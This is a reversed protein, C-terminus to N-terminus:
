GQSNYFEFTLKKNSESIGFKKNSMEKDNMFYKASYSQNLFIFIMIIILGISKMIIDKYKYNSNEMM